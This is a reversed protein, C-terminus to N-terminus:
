LTAKLANVAKALDELSGGSHASIVRRACEILSHNPGFIKHNGLQEVLENAEGKDLYFMHKSYTAEESRGRALEIWFAGPCDNSSSVSIGVVRSNM